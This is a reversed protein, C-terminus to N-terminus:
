PFQCALWAMHAHQRQQPSLSCKVGLPLNGEKRPPPGPPGPPPRPPPGPLAEQRAGGEDEHRGAAAGEAGGGHAGGEEGPAPAEDFRSRGGRSRGDREDRRMCAVHRQGSLELKLMGSHKRTGLPQLPTFTAGAAASQMGLPRRRRRCPVQLGTRGGGPNKMASAGARRRRM